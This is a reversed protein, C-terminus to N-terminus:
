RKGLLDELAKRALGSVTTGRQKALREAKDRLEPTVRFTVQPSVAARGTLSPRGSRRPFHVDAGDLASDDREFEAAIAAADAETVTGGSATVWAAEKSRDAM